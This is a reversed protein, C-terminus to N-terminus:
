PVSQTTRSASPGPRLRPVGARNRNHARRMKEIAKKEILYILGRSCGCVEAIQAQTYRKGPEAISLFIELMLDLDPHHNVGKANM